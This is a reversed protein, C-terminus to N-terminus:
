VKRYVNAMIEVPGRGGTPVIVRAKEFGLERLDSLYVMFDRKAGSVPPLMECLLWGGGELSERVNGLIADRGEPTYHRLVNVMMVVDYREPLPGRTIDHEEFRVRSKAAPLFEVRSMGRLQLARAEYLGEGEKAGKREWERIQFDAVDYIGSRAAEVMEPNSDYGCVSIQRDWNDILISYAEKGSSCGVSAIRAEKRGYRPLVFYKLSEFILPDNFFSTQTPLRACRAKRLQEELSLKAAEPSSKTFDSFWGSGFLRDIEEIEALADVAM